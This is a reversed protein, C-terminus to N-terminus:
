EIPYLQMLLALVFILLFLFNPWFRKTTITFYHTYQFVIPILAIFMLEISVCPILLVILLTVLNFWFFVGHYKRVSIKQTPLTKILFLGSVFFLLIFYSYFVYLMNSNIANVETLLNRKFLDFAYFLDSKFFYFYFFYFFLPALLGFIAAFWERVNFSRISIISLIIAVFYFIAPAYFLSALAIFFSAKFLNDLVEQKHYTSLIHDLAFVMFFAAFVAPNIQHLVAISSTILLYFLSILYTRQKVVIHKSNIQLLYFGTFLLLTLTFVKSWLINSSIWSSILSFFPMSISEFYFPTVQISLISKLWLLLTLIIITAIVQPLTQKFFNLLM